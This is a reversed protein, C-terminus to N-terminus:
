PLNQTCLAKYGSPATYAFPRQGFNMTGATSGSGVVVPRATGTIGSYLQGISTNNKYVAITGGDMDLAVGIVDGNSFSGGSVSVLTGNNYKQGSALYM